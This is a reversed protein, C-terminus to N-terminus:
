GSAVLLQRLSSVSAARNRGWRGSLLMLSAVSLSIRESRIRISSTPGSGTEGIAGSAGDGMTSAAQSLCEIALRRCM